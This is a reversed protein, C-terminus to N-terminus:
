GAVLCFCARSIFVARPLSRGRRLDWRDFAHRCGQKALAQCGPPLRRVVVKSGAAGPDAESEPDSVPRGRWPGPVAPTM